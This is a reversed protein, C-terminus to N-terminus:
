NRSLDSRADSRAGGATSQRSGRQALVIWVGGLTAVSAVILRLTVAESLFVVAGLAAIVPVSLQVTAARGASLSRLAAYWVVYGLGSAIAGSVAALVVGELSLHMQGFFLASVLLVLPVSWIFNSATAAVPDGVARGLLSYVGWAIGAIVMLVAGRPDPATIGPAVLYVLGAVAAALGVWSWPSFREGRRFAVAFMTLQVAGFLILAGTAAGLSLYAFSFFVMYTFLMTTARWDMPRRAVLRWRPLVVIALTAAGCIVRVTAFSAADILGEGLARRCLLSNAAFALMAVLTLGAIRAVAPDLRSASTREGADTPSM